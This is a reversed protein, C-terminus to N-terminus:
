DKKISFGSYFKKEKKDEWFAKVCENIFDQTLTVAMSLSSSGLQIKSLCEVPGVDSSLM